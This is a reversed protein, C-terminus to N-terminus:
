YLTDRQLRCCSGLSLLPSVSFCVTSLLKGGLSHYKMVWKVALKFCLVAVFPSTLQMGELVALIPVQLIVLLIGRWM